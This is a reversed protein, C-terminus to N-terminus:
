PRRLKKLIAQEVHTDDAKTVFFRTSQYSTEDGIAPIKRFLWLLFGSLTDYDGKPLSLGLRRNLSDIDLVADVLWTDQFLQRIGVEKPDHEDKIEGIIRELVDEITLVGSAVGASAEVVAMHGRSSQFLRLMEVLTTEPKVRLPDRMLSGVPPLSQPLRDTAHIVGVIKDPTGRWIPIRTFGSQVVTSVFVGPSSSEPCSVVRDLPQMLKDVSLHRAELIGAIMNRGAVGVLGSRETHALLYQLEERTARVSLPISRGASDDGPVAFVFALGELLWHFPKYLIAIPRELRTMLEEAHRRFLTRPLVECLVFLAPVTVVFTGAAALAPRARFVSFWFGASALVATTSALVSGSVAFALARQPDSLAATHLRAALRTMAGRSGTGGLRVLASELGNFLFLLAASTLFAIALLTSM